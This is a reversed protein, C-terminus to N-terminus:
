YELSFTTLQFSLTPLSLNQEGNNWVECLVQLPTSVTFDFAAQTGIGRYPGATDFIPGKGASDSFSPIGETGFFSGGRPLAGTFQSRSGPSPVNVDRIRGTAPDLWVYAELGFSITQTSDLKFRASASQVPPKTLATDCLSVGVIGSGLNGGPILVFGYASIRIKTNTLNAPITLVNPFALHTPAQNPPAQMPPVAIFSILGPLGSATIVPM